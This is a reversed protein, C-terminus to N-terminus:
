DKRFSLGAEQLAKRLKPLTSPGMGHLELLERESLKSLKALTTLDARELARRAPAVLTALFGSEPKRQAECVPCAPCDTSKYYKHGSACTRLSKKAAVM